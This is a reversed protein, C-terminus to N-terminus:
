VSPFSRSQLKFEVGKPFKVTEENIPLLFFENIPVTATEAENKLSGIAPDELLFNNSRRNLTKPSGKIKVRGSITSM